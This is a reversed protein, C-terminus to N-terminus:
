GPKNRRPLYKSSLNGSSILDKRPDPYVAGTGRLQAPLPPQDAAPPPQFHGRPPEPSQGWGERGLCGAGPRCEGRAGAAHASRPEAPAHPASGGPEAM